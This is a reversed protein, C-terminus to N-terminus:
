KKGRKGYKKYDHCAKLYEADSAIARTGILSLEFIVAGTLVTMGLAAARKVQLVKM